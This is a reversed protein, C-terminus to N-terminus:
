SEGQVLLMTQTACAFLDLQFYSSTRFEGGPIAVYGGIVAVAATATIGATAGLGGKANWSKTKVWRAFTNSRPRSTTAFSIFDHLAVCTRYVREHLHMYQHRGFAALTYPRWPQSTEPPRNSSSRSRKQFRVALPGERSSKPRWNLIFHRDFVVSRHTTPWEAFSWYCTYYQCVVGSLSLNTISMAQPWPLCSNSSKQIFINNAYCFGPLEVWGVTSCM